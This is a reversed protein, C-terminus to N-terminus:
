IFCSTMAKDCNFDAFHDPLPIRRSSKGLNVCKQPHPLLTFEGIIVVGSDAGM